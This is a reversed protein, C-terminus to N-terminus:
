EWRYSYGITLKHNLVGFFQEFPTRLTYSIRCYHNKRGLYLGATVEAAPIIFRNKEDGTEYFAAMFGAGAGAYLGAIGGVPLYGNFRAYPYLSFYRLDDRGEYGHVLGIDLGAAFFTYPWVSATGGISIVFWPVTFASGATAGISFLKFPANKRKKEAIREEGARKEYWRKASWQDVSVAYCPPIRNDILCAPFVSAERRKIEFLIGRLIRRFCIQSLLTWLNHQNKM